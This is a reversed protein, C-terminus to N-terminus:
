TRVMTLLMKCPEEGTLAHPADPPIVLLEGEGVRHHEGDITIEAVGEIVHVMAHHPATHESIRQGEDVAFLTVTADDAQVLTRSVISGAQVDILQELRTVEGALSEIPQRSANM